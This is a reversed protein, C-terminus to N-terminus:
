EEDSKRFDYNKLFKKYIYLENNETTVIIKM